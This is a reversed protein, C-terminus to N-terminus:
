KKKRRKPKAIDKPDIGYNIRHVIRYIEDQTKAIRELFAEVKAAHQREVPDM